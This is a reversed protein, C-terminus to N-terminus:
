YIVTYKNCLFPLKLPAFNLTFKQPVHSLHLSRTGRHLNLFVTCCSTRDALYCGLDTKTEATGYGLDRCRLIGFCLRISGSNTTRGIKASGGAYRLVQELFLVLLYFSSGVLVIHTLRHHHPFQVSSNFFGFVLLNLSNNIIVHIDKSRHVLVNANSISRYPYFDIPM